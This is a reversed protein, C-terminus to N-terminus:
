LYIFVGKILKISDVSNSFCLISSFNDFPKRQHKMEHILHQLIIILSQHGQTAPRLKQYLQSSINNNKKKKYYATM